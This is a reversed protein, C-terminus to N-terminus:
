SFITIKKQVCHLLSVLLFLVIIIIQQSASSLYMGIIGLMVRAVAVDGDDSASPQRASSLTSLRAIMPLFVDDLQRRTWSWESYVSLLELGLEVYDLIGAVKVFAEIRYIQM